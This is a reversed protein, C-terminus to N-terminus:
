RPEPDDAKDGLERDRDFIRADTELFPAADLDGADMMEAIRQLNALMMLQEWSALKRLQERFRDQLLSPAGDLAKRGADTISVLVNRRDAQGRERKLLGQRELRILIGTMTANSLQVSRALVSAPMRDTQAIMQLTAVQPGTLGFDEVLQRSHLDVARMVRRIATVIQDEFRQPPAPPPVPETKSNPM